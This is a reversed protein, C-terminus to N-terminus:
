KLRGNESERWTRYWCEKSNNNRSQPFCIFVCLKKM